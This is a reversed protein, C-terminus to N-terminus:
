IISLRSVSGKALGDVRMMTPREFANLTHAKSATTQARGKVSPPLARIGNAGISALPARGPKVQALTALSASKPLGTPFTSHARARAHPVSQQAEPQLTAISHSLDRLLGKMVEAVGATPVEERTLTGVEGETGELPMKEQDAEIEARLEAEDDEIVPQEDWGPAFAPKGGPLTFKGRREPVSGAEISLSVGVKRKTRKTEVPDSSAEGPAESPTPPEELRFAIAEPGAPELQGTGVEPVRAHGVPEQQRARTERVTTQEPSAASPSRTPAPSRQLSRTPTAGTPTSIARALHLRLLGSVANLSGGVADAAWAAAAALPSQAKASPSSSLTRGPSAKLHGIARTLLSPTPAVLTPEELTHSDPKAGFRPSTPLSCSPPLSPQTRGNTGQARARCKSALEHLARQAEELAQMAAARERKAEQEALLKTHQADRVVGGAREAAQWRQKADQWRWGISVLASSPRPRLKGSQPSVVLTLATPMPQAVAASADAAGQGVGETEEDGDAARRARVLLENLQHFAQRPARAMPLSLPDDALLELSRGKAAAARALVLKSLPKFTSLGLEDVQRLQRQLLLMEELAERLGQTHQARSRSATASSTKHRFSELQRRIGKIRRILPATLGDLLAIAEDLLKGRETMIFRLHQVMACRMALLQFRLKANGAGRRFGVALILAAEKSAARKGRFKADDVLRADLRVLEALALFGSRPPESRSVLKRNAIIVRDACTAERYLVDEVEERSM